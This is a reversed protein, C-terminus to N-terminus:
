FGLRIEAENIEVRLLRAQQAAEAAAIAFHVQGATIAAVPSSPQSLVAWVDPDLKMRPAQAVIQWGANGSEVTIHGGFPLASELCMLLLFALKAEARPLDPPSSWDIALRGGRTLDALIGAVEARGIRQGADAVGFSLRFFRIRANAQAVSEAILAVEPGTGGPEMMLLEVGNGIAGIPSILDHCIRSGLLALLDPRESM